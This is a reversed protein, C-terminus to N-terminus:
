KAVAKPMNCFGPLLNRFFLLSEVGCTNFARPYAQGFRRAPAPGEKEPDHLLGDPALRKQLLLLSAKEV